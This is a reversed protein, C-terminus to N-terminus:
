EAMLEGSGRIELPMDKFKPLGDHVAMVAEGYNLHAAPRFPVTPVVAARVDVLGLQPHDLLLHGGCRTCFKRDSTGVKDFGGLLDSGAVIKVQDAPWITFTIFPAGSYARCSHCHCYGMDVPDGVVEIQVAGCFCNGQHRDTHHDM